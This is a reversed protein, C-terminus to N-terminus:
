IVPCYPLALSPIAHCTRLVVAPAGSAKVGTWDSEM